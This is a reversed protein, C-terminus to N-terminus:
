FLSPEERKWALYGSIFDGHCLLPHCWCGLVDNDHIMVLAAQRLRKQEPAYWYVAFKELVEERSGDVGIHFPNHFASEPIGHFERGIYHTFNNRQTNVKTIRVSM